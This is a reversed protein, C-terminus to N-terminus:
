LKLINYCFHKGSKENEPVRKNSLCKLIIPLPPPGRPNELHIMHIHSM